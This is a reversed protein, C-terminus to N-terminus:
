LAEISGHKPQFIDQHYNPPRHLLQQSTLSVGTTTPHTKIVRIHRNLVAIPNIGQSTLWGMWCLVKITNFTSRRTLWEHFAVRAEDLLGNYEVVIPCDHFMPSNIGHIGSVKYRGIQIREMCSIELHYLDHYCLLFGRVEVPKDGEKVIKKSICGLAERIPIRKLVKSPPILIAM